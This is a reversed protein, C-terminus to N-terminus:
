KGERVRQLLKANLGAVVVGFVALAGSGHHINDGLRSAPLEVSRRKLEQAVAVEIRPGVEGCHGVVQVAVLKAAGDAPRDDDRVKGLAEACLEEKAILVRKHM